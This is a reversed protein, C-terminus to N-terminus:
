CSTGSGNEYLCAYQLPITLKEQGGVVPRDITITPDNGTLKAYGTPRLLELEGILDPAVRGDQQTGGEM